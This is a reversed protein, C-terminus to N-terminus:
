SGSALDFHKQVAQKAGLLVRKCDASITVGPDAAFEADWNAIGRSDALATLKFLKIGECEPHAQVAKNLAATLEEATKTAKSTTNKNMPVCSTKAPDTGCAAGAVFLGASRPQLQKPLEIL